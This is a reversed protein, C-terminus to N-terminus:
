PMRRKSNLFNADEWGSQGTRSKWAYAYTGIGGGVPTGDQTFALPQTNYCVTDNDTVLNNLIRPHVNLLATSSTDWCEGSHVIRRFWTTDSLPAPAYVAETGGTSPIWGAQDLSEEWLYAYVMGDGGGIDLAPRISGPDTGECLLTDLPELLNNSIEPQVQITLVNSADM